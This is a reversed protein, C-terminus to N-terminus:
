PEGSNTAGQPAATIKSGWCRYSGDTRGEQFTNDGQLYWNKDLHRPIRATPDQGKDQHVGAGLRKGSSKVVNEPQRVKKMGKEKCGLGILNLRLSLKPFKLALYFLIAKSFHFEEQQYNSDHSPTKEEQITGVLM